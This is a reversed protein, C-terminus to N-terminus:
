LDLKICCFSPKGGRICMLWLNVALDWHQWCTTMLQLNKIFWQMRLLRAAQISRLHTIKMICVFFNLKMFAYHGVLFYCMAVYCFAMALDVFQILRPYSYLCLSGCLLLVYCFPMKLDLFEILRPSSNTSNTLTSSKTSKTVFVHVSTFIM